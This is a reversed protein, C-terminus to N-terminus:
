KGEGKLLGDMDLGAERAREQLVSLGATETESPADGGDLPSPPIARREWIEDFSARPPSVPEAVMEKGATGLELSEGRRIKEMMEEVGAAGLMLALRAKSADLEAQTGQGARVQGAWSEGRVIRGITGIAVGYHRALAGQTAGEAYYRRIEGVQDLTLKGAKGHNRAFLGANM